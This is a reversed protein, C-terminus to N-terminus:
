SQTTEEHDSEARDQLAKCTGSRGGDFSIYCQLRGSLNGPRSLGGTVAYQQNWITSLTQDTACEYWLKGKRMLCRPLPQRRAPWHFQRGVRISCAHQDRRRLDPLTSEVEEIGERTRAAAKTVHRTALNLFNSPLVAWCTSGSVLVVVALGERWRRNSTRNTVICRSGIVLKQYTDLLRVRRVRRRLRTAHTEHSSPQLPRWEVTTHANTTWRQDKPLRVQKSADDNTLSCPVCPTIGFVRQYPSFEFRDDYRNHAICGQVILEDNESETRPKSAERGDRTSSRETNTVQQLVSMM